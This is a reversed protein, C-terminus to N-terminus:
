GHSSVLSLAYATRPRPNCSPHSAPSRSGPCHFSPRRDQPLNPSLFSVPHNLSPAPVRAKDGPRSSPRKVRSRRPSNNLDKHIGGPAKDGWRVGPARRSGEIGPFGFPKSVLTPDIQRSVPSSHASRSASGAYPARCPRRLPSPAPLGWKHAAGARGSRNSGLPLHHQRPVAIDGRAPEVRLLM